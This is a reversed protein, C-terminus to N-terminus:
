SCVKIIQQGVKRTAIAGSMKNLLSGLDQDRLDEATQLDEPLHQQVTASSAPGVTMGLNNCSYCWSVAHRNGTDDHAHCALSLMRLPWIARKPQSAQLVHKCAIHIRTYWASVSEACSLM